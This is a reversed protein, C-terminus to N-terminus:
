KWYISLYNRHNQVNFQVSPPLNNPLFQAPASLLWFVQQAGRGRWQGDCLPLSSTVDDIMSSSRCGHGSKSNLGPLLVVGDVM